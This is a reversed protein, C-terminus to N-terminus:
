NATVYFLISRALLEMYQLEGCGSIKERRWVTSLLLDLRDVHNSRDRVDCWNLLITFVKKKCVIILPFRLPFGHFEPQQMCQM